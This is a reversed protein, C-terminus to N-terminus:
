KVWGETLLEICIEALHRALLPPVANGVQNFQDLHLEQVIGKRALLKKSLTTKKGKFVFSDPFTQIRAAERVTINRPQSPHVFSSYFSATITPSVKNGDIIRSNQGYTSSSVLELNSRVRPLFEEPLEAGRKELIFEFKKVTKSTHRMPIHNHLEKNEGRLCAQFANRPLMAYQLVTDEPYQRAKVIPLDSVAENFTIEHQQFRKLMKELKFETKLKDKKIAILFFRKRDQPVGYNRCNIVAYDSTYGCEDLFRLIDNLISVGNSLKFKIIEKVNEILVVNPQIANVARLFDQYLENREDDSKRRNSAAISFGQCPPGGVVVSVKGRYINFYDDSLMTIDAELINKNRHNALYTNVAWADKEIALEVNFGMEEFGLSLGGAGAFLDIVNLGHNEM